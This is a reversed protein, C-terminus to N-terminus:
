HGGKGGDKGGSVVAGTKTDLILPTTNPKQDFDFM